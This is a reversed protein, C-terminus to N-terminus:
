DVDRHHGGVDRDVGGAGRHLGGAGVDDGASDCLMVAMENHIVCESGSNSM